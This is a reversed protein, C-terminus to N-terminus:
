LEKLQRSSSGVKNSEIGDRGLNFWFLQGNINLVHNINERKM